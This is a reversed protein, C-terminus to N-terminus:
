TTFQREPPLHNKITDLLISGDRIASTVFTFNGARTEVVWCAPTLLRPPKERRLSQVESWTAQVNQQGDTWSIGGPTVTISELRRQRAISNIKWLRQIIFGDILIGYILMVWCAITVPWGSSIPMSALKTAGMVLAMSGNILFFVSVGDLILGSRYSYARTANALLYAAKSLWQHTSAETAREQIIQKLQKAQRWDRRLLLLGASTEVYDVDVSLRKAEYYAQVQAWSVHQEGHWSRWHLGQADAVIKCPWYIAIEICTPTLALLAFGALWPRM